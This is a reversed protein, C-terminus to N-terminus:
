ETGFGVMSLEGAGGLSAMMRDPNRVVGPYEICVLEKGLKHRHSNM